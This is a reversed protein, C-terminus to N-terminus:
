KKKKKTKAPFVSMFDKRGSKKNQRVQVYFLQDGNTAGYFRHLVTNPNEYSFISDPSHPTNRLLDIACLYLRARATQEGRRKQVLHNWFINLFVKDKNFYRSRVYPQRKTRRRIANHERHARPIVEDYSSGPLPEYKSKYIKTSIKHAM